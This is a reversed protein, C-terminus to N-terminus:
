REGCSGSESSGAERKGSSLAHQVAALLCRRDDDLWCVHWTYTGADLHVHWSWDASVRYNHYTQLGRQRQNVATVGRHRHQMVMRDIHILPSRM